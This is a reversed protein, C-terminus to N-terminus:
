ERFADRVEVVVEDASPLSHALRGLERAETSEKTPGGSELESVVDRGCEGDLWLMISKADSDPGLQASPAGSM